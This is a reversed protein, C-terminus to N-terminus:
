QAKLVSESLLFWRILYGIFLIQSMQFSLLYKLILLFTMTLGKNRSVCFSEPNQWSGEGVGLPSQSAWICITPQVPQAWSPCDGRLGQDRCRGDPTRRWKQGPFSPGVMKDFATVKIGVQTLSVPCEAFSNYVTLVVKKIKHGFFCTSLPEKSRGM